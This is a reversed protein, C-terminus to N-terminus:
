PRKDLPAVRTADAPVDSTRVLRAWTGGGGGFFAIARSPALEENVWVLLPEFLHDCWLEERSAFVRQNDTPCLRCIVGGFARQPYADFDALLDWCIGENDVAISIECRSLWGYLFPAGVDFTFELVRDTRRGIVIQRKLRPRAEELWALFARQIRPRVAM